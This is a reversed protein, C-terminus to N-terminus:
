ATVRAESHDFLHPWQEMYGDPDAIGSHISGEDECSEELDPSGMSGAYVRGRAAEEPTWGLSPEEDGDGPERGDHSDDEERDVCHERDDTNGASWDDQTGSTSRFPRDDWSQYHALNPHNEVAGLSPETEDGAFEDDGAPEDDVAAEFDADGDTEDLFAILREIDAAAQRRLRGLAQFLQEPVIDTRVYLNDPPASGASCSILPESKAGNGVQEGAACTSVQEWDACTSQREAGSCCQARDAVPPFMPRSLTM